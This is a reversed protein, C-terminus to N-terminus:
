FRSPMAEKRYADRFAKKAEEKYHDPEMAIAKNAWDQWHSVLRMDRRKAAIGAKRGADEYTEIANM